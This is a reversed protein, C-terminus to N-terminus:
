AEPAWLISLPARTHSLLAHIPLDANGALAADLVTRKKQGRIMLLSHRTDLLANLTLSLRPEKPAPDHPEVALCLRDTDPSLGAALQPSGPFLSAFHGDEGMGLFVVDWPRPLAALVADAADAAAALDAAPSWLPVFRAAAAPGTLLTERILRANSLPSDPPVFREDVQLIIVKSWDLDAKALERFMPAPTSGGALVLTAVGRQRIARDLLNAMQAACARALDDGDSFAVLGCVSATAASSM